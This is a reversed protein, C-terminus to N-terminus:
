NEHQGSFSLSRNAYDLVCLTLNKYPNIRQVNGYITRNLIDLFKVPDTQKSEFLTRVATQTMLMLVGSELGHGTVDGISIKVKGDQQLVDYYDGGVEDAPEMYGAIELGEISELESQKPLIMQQLQKTVELEASM